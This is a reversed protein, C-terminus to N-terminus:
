LLKAVLQPAGSMLSLLNAPEERSLVVPMITKRKAGIASIAGFLEQELVDRYLFVLGSM